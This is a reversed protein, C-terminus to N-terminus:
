VLKLNLLFLNAIITFTITRLM